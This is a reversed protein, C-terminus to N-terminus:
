AARESDHEIIDLSSAYLHTILTNLLHLYPELGAVKLVEVKVSNITVNLAVYGRRESFTGYGKMLQDRKFM